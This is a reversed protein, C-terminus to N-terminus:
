RCTYHSKPPKTRDVICGPQRCFSGTMWLHCSPILTGCASLFLPLPFSLSPLPAIPTLSFSIPLLSPLCMQQAWRCVLHQLSCAAFLPSRSYSGIWFELTALYKAFCFPNRDRIRVRFGLEERQQWPADEFSRRRGLVHDPDM